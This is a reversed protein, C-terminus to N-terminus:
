PLWLVYGVNIVEEEISMDWDLIGYFICIKHNEVGRRLKPLDVVLVDGEGNGVLVWEVADALFLFEKRCWSIDTVSM